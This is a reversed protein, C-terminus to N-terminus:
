MARILDVDLKIKIPPFNSFKDAAIFAYKIEGPVTKGM